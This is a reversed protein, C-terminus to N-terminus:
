DIELHFHSNRLNYQFQPCSFDIECYNVIEPSFIVKNQKKLLWFLINQDLRFFFVLENQQCNM